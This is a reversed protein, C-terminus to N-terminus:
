SHTFPDHRPQFFGAEMKCERITVTEKNVTVDTIIVQDSVNCKPLWLRPPVPRPSTPIPPARKEPKTADRQIKNTSIGSGSCSGSNSNVNDASSTTEVRNNNQVQHQDRDRNEQNISKFPILHVDANGDGLVRIGDEGGGADVDDGAAIGAAAAVAAVESKTTSTTPKEPPINSEPHSAPTEPSLPAPETKIPVTIPTASVNTCVIKTPPPGEPSTKITVGIKGSEKSLVEAKRKTGIIDKTRLKKSNTSSQSLPQDDSSSSDSNDEIRTLARASRQHATNLKKTSASESKIRSDVSASMLTGNSKKSENQKAALTAHSNISSSTPYVSKKNCKNHSKDRSISHNARQSTEHPRSLGSDVRSSDNTIPEDDHDDAAVTASDEEDDEEEVEEEEEQEEETDPEPEIIRERKKPGKRIPTSAVRREFMQILRTDLINEEPEWTNYRTTWGQWKVRYEVKGGQM